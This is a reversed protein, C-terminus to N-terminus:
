KYTIFMSAHIGKNGSICIFCDFLPGRRLYTSDSNDGCSGTNSLKRHPPISNRDQRKSGDATNEDQFIFVGSFLMASDRFRKFGNSITFDWFVSGELILNIEFVYRKLSHIYALLFFVVSILFSTQLILSTNKTEMQM